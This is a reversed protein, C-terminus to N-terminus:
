SVDEVWLLSEEFPGGQHADFLKRDATVLPCDQVVALAVYLSDYVTTGTGYAIDFAADLLPAASHIRFPVLSFGSLAERATKEDMERRRLKKWLINGFEPLLLDPALPVVGERLLRLAADSHIEPVFWKIAVSADVVYPTV